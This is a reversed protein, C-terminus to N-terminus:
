HDEECRYWDSVIRSLCHEQYKSPPFTQRMLGLDNIVADALVALRIANEGIYVADVGNIAGDIEGLLASRLATSVRDRLAESM